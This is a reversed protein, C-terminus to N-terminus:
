SLLVFFLTPTHKVASGVEQTAVVASGVAVVAVAYASPSLQPGFGSCGPNARIPFTTSGTGIIPNAAFKEGSGRIARGGKPLSMSPVSPGNKEEGASSKSESTPGNMEGIAYVRGDRSKRNRPTFSCFVMFSM